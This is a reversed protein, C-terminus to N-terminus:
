RISSRFTFPRFPSSISNFVPPVRAANIMTTAVGAMESHRQQDLLELRRHGNCREDL